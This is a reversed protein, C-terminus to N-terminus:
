GVWPPPTSLAALAVPPTVPNHPAKPEWDLPEGDMGAQREPFVSLLAEITDYFWTLKEKKAAFAEYLLAHDNNKRAKSILNDLQHLTDLAAHLGSDHAIEVPISYPIDSVTPTTFDNLTSM